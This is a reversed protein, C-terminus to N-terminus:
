KLYIHTRLCDTRDCGRREIRGKVETWDVAEIAGQDFHDSFSLRLYDRAPYTAISLPWLSAVYDPGSFIGALRGNYLVAGGSMAPPLAQDLVYGPFEGFGHGRLTSAHEIVRAPRVWLELDGSHVGGRVTIKPNPFGYVRVSAGIPPPLLQWSLYKAEVGRKIADDDMPHLILVSIDTDIAQYVVRPRWEIALGHTAGQYVAIPLASQTVDEKRSQFFGRSRRHQAEFQPDHRTFAQTVHRATLGHETAVLIGSGAEEVAYPVDDTAEFVYCWFLLSGVQEIELLEEGTARFKM